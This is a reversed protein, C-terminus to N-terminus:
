VLFSMDGCEEMFINLCIGKNQVSDAAPAQVFFLCSCSLQRLPFQIKFINQFHIQFFIEMMWFRRKYAYLRQEQGSQQTNQTQGIEQDSLINKSVSMCNLSTSRRSYHSHFDLLSEIKLHFAKWLFIVFVLCLTCIYIRM